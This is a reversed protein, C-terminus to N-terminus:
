HSLRSHGCDKGIVYSIAQQEAEAQTAVRNQKMWAELEKRDFYVCKGSPKYHPIQHTCTLKYLYSKSMGTLAVVDDFSLVNKAALLTYMKIVDLQKQIEEM